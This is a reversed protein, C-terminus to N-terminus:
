RSLVFVNKPRDQKRINMQLYGLYSDVTTFYQSEGFFDICDDIRPLPYTDRVSMTKLKRNEICSRLIGDKKTTFLVPAAWKSM